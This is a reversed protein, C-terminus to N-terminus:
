WIDKGAKGRRSTPVEAGRRYFLQPNGTTLGHLTRSHGHEMPKGDQNPKHSAFFLHLHDGFCLVDLRDHCGYYRHAATWRSIFRLHNARHVSHGVGVAYTASNCCFRSCRSHSDMEVATGCCSGRTRARDRNATIPRDFAVAPNDPTYLRARDQQAHVDRSLVRSSPASGYDPACPSSVGRVVM